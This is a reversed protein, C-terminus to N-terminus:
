VSDTIGSDHIGFLQKRQHQRQQRESSYDHRQEPRISVADL